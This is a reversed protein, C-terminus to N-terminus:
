NLTQAVGALCPPIQTELLSRVRYRFRHADVSVAASNRVAPRSRTRDLGQRQCRHRRASRLRGIRSRGGDADRWDLGIGIAFRRLVLGWFSVALIPLPMGILVSLWLETERAARPFEFSLGVAAIGIVIVAFVTLCWLVPVTARPASDPLIRWSHTM